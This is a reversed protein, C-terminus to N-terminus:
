VPETAFVPVSILSFRTLENTRRFKIEMAKNQALADEVAMSGPYNTREGQRSDSSIDRM